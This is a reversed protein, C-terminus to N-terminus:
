GKPQEYSKALDSDGVGATTPDVVVGLLVLLNIVMGVINIIENESVAPTIGLLGLIQYVLAVVGLVIATLTAKNQFRLKWNIDM